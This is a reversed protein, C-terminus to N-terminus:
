RVHSIMAFLFSVFVLRWKLNEKLYDVAGESSTEGAEIKAEIAKTVDVTATIPKEGHTGLTSALGVFSEEGAWDAAEGNVDGLFVYLSYPSGTGPLQADALYAQYTTSNQEQRKVKASGGTAPGSYDRVLTAILTENSPSNALEPYTYGLDTINRSSAPTWFDGAKNKHFPTLAATLTLIFTKGYPLHKISVQILM